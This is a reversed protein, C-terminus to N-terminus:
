KKVPNMENHETEYCLCFSIFLEMLKAQTNSSISVKKTNQKPFRKKRVYRKSHIRMRVKLM